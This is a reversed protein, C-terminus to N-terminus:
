AVPRIPEDSFIYSWLREYVWPYEPGEDSLLKEYFWKPRSHIMKKSVVFQAGPHFVFDTHHGTFYKDYITGVGLGSHHPSGNRDCSLTHTSLYFVDGGDFSALRSALDPCHDFPMGQLFCTHEALTDYNMVIHYLYTHAERGINPLVISGPLESGKNYIIFNTLGEIWSIDENYKAIVFQM